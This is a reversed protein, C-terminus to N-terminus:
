FTLILMIELSSLKIVESISPVMARLLLFKENEKQKDSKFHWKCTERGELKDLCNRGGNEKGSRLSRGDYMFPGAFLIKKLMNQHIRPKYSGVTGKKWSVFSSKKDGIGFCSNEILQSSSRLIVYLTKKYHLDDDPGIDLYGFKTYNGEQLEKLHSINKGKFSPVVKEQDAFAESVCDSSNMSDRVGNSFEHDMFHWSQVQSGGNLGELMFSDEAQHNHECGNSTCDAPSGKYEERMDGNVEKIGEPEIEGEETPTHINELSLTDDIERSIKASMQDRDDDTNHAASSSKESCVPKSFNLLSAKIHQILTPDETVKLYTFFFFHLLLFVILAIIFQDM